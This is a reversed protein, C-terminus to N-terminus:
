SPAAALRGGREKEAANPSLTRRHMHDKFALRLGVGGSAMSSFNIAAVGIQDFRNDSLFSLGGYIKAYLRGADDAAAGGSM